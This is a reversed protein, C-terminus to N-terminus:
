IRKEVPQKLLSWRNKRDRVAILVADEAPYRTSKYVIDLVDDRIDTLVIPDGICWTKNDRDFSADLLQYHGNKNKVTFLGITGDDTNTAEFHWISYGQPMGDIVCCQEEGWQLGDASDRCAIFYENDCFLAYFLRYGDATKIVAPSLLTDGGCELLVTPTSWLKGDFSDTFMLRNNVEEGNICFTHRYYLRLRTDALLCPDNLYDAGNGSDPLQMPGCLYLFSGDKRCKYICPNEYTNISYPFPTAVMFLEDHFAVLSPHTLQGSGDYSDVVVLRSGYQARLSPYNCLRIWRAILRPLTKGKKYPIKYLADGLNSLRRIVKRVM